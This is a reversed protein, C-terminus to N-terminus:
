LNDKPDVLLIARTGDPNYIIKNTKIGHPFDKQSGVYLAEFNKPEKDWDFRRFEYKEFHHSSDFSGASTVGIKQYEAPPYNLYFLFFMYSKDMPQKDSIIIKKYNNKVKEIESIAEKYGYQWDAAYYYNQQVFYQNLFYVFNGLAFLIIVGYLAFKAWNGFKIKFDKLYLYSSVIGISTIILLMPLLNLTRVAHPVEFTVAAPIPAILMWSFIFYKSKKDYKGFILQYIGILLFPLTVLLLLGMRPAHHRNIDGTLFLWNPDFHSLYSGAITKVYITRRNDLLLGMYDNRERDSELKVISKELLQTQNSFISTARIRVLSKEDTSFYILMPLVAIIGVLVAGILYKKSTKLLEKWYIIVLALMLLPTFVRESQYTSLNIGAFFASLLLLWPSRLGKLFFLAALLNFTLGINTEFATRSFQIHWPSIALLFASLLALTDVYKRTYENKGFLEKVLFFLVIIAIIGFIASPLRVAFTNMGFLEVTPIALYAYVAPKYDDFSRLVAPFLKGYEDRGTMFLSHADYALAAEDWDPSPPVSGLQWLRLITGLMLIIILLIITLNKKM